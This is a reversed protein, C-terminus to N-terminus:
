MFVCLCTCTCFKRCSLDDIKVFQSYSQIVPHDKGKLPDFKKEPPKEERKTGVPEETSTEEMVKPVELTVKRRNLLPSRREMPPTNQGSPTQLLAARRAQSPSMYPTEKKGQTDLACVVVGEGDEKPKPIFIKRRAGSALEEPTASRILSLSDRRKLRPSSECSLSSTPTSGGSLEDDAKDSQHGGVTIVPVAAVAESDSEPAAKSMFKRLSAPSLSPHTPPKSLLREVSPMVNEGKAEKLSKKHSIEPVINDATKSFSPENECTKPILAEYLMLTNEKTSKVMEEPNLKTSQSKEPSITMNDFVDYKTGRQTGALTKTEVSESFLRFASDSEHTTVSIPPVVFLPVTPTQVTEPTDSVFADVHVDDEKNDTCSVSIVPISTFDMPPLEVNSIEEPQGREFMETKENLQVVEKVKETPSLNSDNQMSKQTPSDAMRQDQIIIAPVHTADHKQMIASESEQKNLALITLPLTCKLEPEMIETKPIIFHENANVDPVKPKIDTVNETTSVQIKQFVESPWCQQIVSSDQQTVNSDEESVTADKNRTVSLNNLEDFEEVEGGEKKEEEVELQLSDDMAEIHEGELTAVEQTKQYNCSNSELDKVLASIWQETLDSNDESSKLGSNPSSIASFNNVETSKELESFTREPQMKLDGRELSDPAATPPFEINMEQILSSHKAEQKVREKEVNFAAVTSVPLLVQDPAKSEHSEVKEEASSIEYRNIDSPPQKISKVEAKEEDCFQNSSHNQETDPEVEKVITDVAVEEEQLNETPVEGLSQSEPTSIVSQPLTWSEELSTLTPTPTPTPSSKDESTAQTQPMVAIESSQTSVVLCHPVQQQIPVEKVVSVVQTDTQHFTSM